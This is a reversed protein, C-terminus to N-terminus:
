GATNPRVARIALFMPIERRARNEEAARPGPESERASPWEELSDILLGAERLLRVYTQIPRHHTLTVVKEAGSAAAGPNMVIERHGASLYGDVRRFQRDSSRASGPASRGAADSGRVGGRGHRDKSASSDWVWSTQGPSRFAPHLIVCVFSGGRRIKSAIGAFVPALPEINMLAMLCTARDFPEGDLSADGLNRADGVQFRPAPHLGGTGRRAADILNPAADIGTAQVGLRALTRCFAGQGCAIDLIHQGKAPELLRLTGPIIVKEFHDSRGEEILRDYWTAVHNWGSESARPADPPLSSAGIPGADADGPAEGQEIAAAEDRGAGVLRFFERPVPSKLRLPRGSFAHVMGLEGAHLCVRGIPDTVAGYRRDGAIPHGVDKMHVRIQNKRGTELRIQLLSCGRGANVCRWHTVALKGDSRDRDGGRQQPVRSAAPPTSSSEVQGRSNEWLYSQITGSSGTGATPLEGEVVAYYLRSLRRARLDEKLWHLARESKAFIMLGSVERDLRHVVFVPTRTRSRVRGRVYRKVLSFLDDGEYGEGRPGGVYASLMGCPKDVILLDDDEFVVRVGRAIGRSSEAPNRNGRAPKDPQGHRRPKRDAM